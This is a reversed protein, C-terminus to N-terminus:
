RAEAVLAPVGDAGHFRLLRLLSPSCGTLRVRGAGSAAAAVLVRAAAIDAFRLESVDITVDPGDDFLHEAVARLADRNSLDAEGELRLGWPDLVRRMRLSSDPDFPMESGAAGPHAWLLRRLHLPDFRRRDYACVGAVYGEAFIMNIQAEYWPLHEFGPFRRSAWSMDGLLRIGRYGASRARAVESRWLLMTAHPDFAGSALYSGEPTDVSLDGAGLAAGTDVGRQRLGEVVAAPDDGCYLVRERNRLGTRVFGAITEMRIVDDDVSWCVHDGLTVQDLLPPGGM